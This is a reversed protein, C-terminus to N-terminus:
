LLGSVHLEDCLFPEKRESVLSREQAYYIQLGGLAEIEPRRCSITMSFSVLEQM